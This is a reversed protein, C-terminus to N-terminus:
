HFYYALGLRVTQATRKQSLPLGDLGTTTNKYSTDFLYEVRTSWRDSLMYELGGGGVFSSGPVHGQSSGTAPDIQQSRSWDVGATLYPLFRGFAWGARGRIDADVYDHYTAFGVGPQPGSGRVNGIETAGEIGLMANGFMFNRGTFMGFVPGRASTKTTVGGLSTRPSSWMGGGLIGGYDGSWDVPGGGASDSPKLIEGPYSILALRFYQMSGGVRVPGGAIAFTSTPYADYIYEARLTSPGLIPLGVRWELGAGLSLGTELRRQGFQSLTTGYVDTESTAAGAAIFPMFVGLDYGLRARLRVTDVADVVDGALGPAIGPGRTRLANVGIEAEAGYVFRNAEFQWGLFTGGVFGGHHSTRTATQSSKFAGYGFGFASGAYFGAWNALPPPEVIPAPALDAASVPSQAASLAAFVLAAACVGAEIRAASARRAHRGQRIGLM